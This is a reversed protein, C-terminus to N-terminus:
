AGLGKKEPLLIHTVHTVITGSPFDDAHSQCSSDSPARHPKKKKPPVSSHPLLGGYHWVYEVLGRGNGSKCGTISRKTLPERCAECESRTSTQNGGKRPQLDPTVEGWGDGRTDM